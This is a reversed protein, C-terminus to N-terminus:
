APVELEDPALESEPGYQRKKWNSLIGSMRIRRGGGGGEPSSPRHNQGKHSPDASQRM